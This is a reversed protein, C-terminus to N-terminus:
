AEGEVPTILLKQYRWLADLYAHECKGVWDWLADDNCGAQHHAVVACAFHLRVKMLRDSLEDDSM